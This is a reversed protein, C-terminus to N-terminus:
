KGEAIQRIKERLAETEETSETLMRAVHAAGATWADFAAQTERDAYIRIASPSVTPTIDYQDAAAWLAFPSPAIAIM